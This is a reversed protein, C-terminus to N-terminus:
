LRQKVLRGSFPFMVSFSQLVQDAVCQVPFHAFSEAVSLIGCGGKAVPVLLLSGDYETQVHCDMHSLFFANGAQNVIFFSVTEKPIENRVRFLPSSSEAFDVFHAQPGGEPLPVQLLFIIIDPFSKM